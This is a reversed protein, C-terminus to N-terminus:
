VTSNDYVIVTAPKTMDPNVYQAKPESSNEAHPLSTEFCSMGTLEKTTRNFYWIASEVVTANDSTSGTPIFNPPALYALYPDSHIDSNPEHKSQQVTSL